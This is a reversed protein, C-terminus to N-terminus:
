RALGQALSGALTVLAGIALWLLLAVPCGIACGRFASVQGGGSLGPM